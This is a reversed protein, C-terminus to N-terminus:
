RKYVAFGDPSVVDSIYVQFPLGEWKDVSLVRYKDAFEWLYFGDGEGSNDEFYFAEGSNTYHFRIGDYDIYNDISHEEDMKILEQETVGLGTLGMPRSEEMLTVFPGSEDAWHVWLRNDGDVGLLEYSVGSFGQYRNMKEIIFYGDEYELRFGTVTFVDGVRADQISDVLSDSGSKKGKRGRFLSGLM